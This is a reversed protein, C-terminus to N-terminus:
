NGTNTDRGARLIEDVLLLQNSLVTTLGLMQKKVAFNDYIGSAQPDIPEGTALDLGSVHGKAYEEGLKLICDLPDHGSTQALTKPIVLMAEAFALAGLKPKGSVKEEAFKKLHAHAAIEFAGAGPLVCQDEITNKVARLGDRVADKMQTIIHKNPGRLLVTCSFPDKVDEVFTFKEDEHVEEYVVGAYGLVEPELGDVSNVPVGGCALTLREMNRRKARRLAIIGERAFLDLCPPDIGKQNVVVFSKDNGDCVKKKLAIIKKAREDVVAREADVMKDRQEANSYFFGATVESKEHEMSINCTLIYANKVRKPMDPHRAGHDMVLGRILRSPGGQLGMLPMIEVMHLDIPQNERTITIVADALIEALNVAVKQPVKTLISCRAVSVLLEREMKVAIKQSDIWGMLEDKAVDFGDLIIRPHLGEVLLQEAKKLMEGILLVTSTTGDGCADDQASAGRAIMLSTPNQIQMEDLLVKGDKTLKIDGAGSVLMKITGKPGLNSRLVNQLGKAANITTHLALGRRSVEAGANLLNVAM